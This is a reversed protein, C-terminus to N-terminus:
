EVLYPALVADVDDRLWAPATGKRYMGWTILSGGLTTEVTRALRATDTNPLLEGAAM